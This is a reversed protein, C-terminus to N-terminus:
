RNRKNSSNTSGPQKWPADPSSARLMDHHEALQVLSKQFANADLIVDGPFNPVLMLSQNYHHPYSLELDLFRCQMPALPVEGELCVAENMENMKAREQVLAKAIDQISLKGLLTNSSLQIGQDRLKASLRIALVSDGGLRTFSQSLNLTALDKRLLRALLDM